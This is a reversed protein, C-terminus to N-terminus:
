AGEASCNTFACAQSQFLVWIASGRPSATSIQFAIAAPLWTQEGSEVLNRDNKTTKGECAAYEHVEVLSHDKALLHVSPCVPRRPKGKDIPKSVM